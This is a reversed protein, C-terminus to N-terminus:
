LQIKLVLYDKLEIFIELDKKFDELKQVIIRGLMLAKENNTNEITAIRVITCSDVHVFIFENIVSCTM